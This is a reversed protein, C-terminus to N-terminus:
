ETVRHGSVGLYGGEIEEMLEVLVSLSGVMGLVADLVEEYFM